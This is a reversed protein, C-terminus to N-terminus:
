AHVCGGYVCVCGYACVGMHVWEVGLIYACLGM